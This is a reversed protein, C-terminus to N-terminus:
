PLRHSSVTCLRLPQPPLSDLHVLHPHPVKSSGQPSAQNCQAPRPVWAWPRRMGGPAVRRAAQQRMGQPRQVGHPRRTGLLHPSMGVIVVRLRPELPQQVQRPMGAHVEVQGRAEEMLEGHPHPGAGPLPPEEQLGQGQHPMGGLVSPPRLKQWTGNLPLNPLNQMRPTGADGASAMVGQQQLLQPQQHQQQEQWAQQRPQRWSRASRRMSTACPTRPTVSCSSSASSTRTPACGHTQHRTAWPLPMMANLPFLAISGAGSTTTRVTTSIPPSKSAWVVLGMTM